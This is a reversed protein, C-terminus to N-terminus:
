RKAGPVSQALLAAIHAHHDSRVTM